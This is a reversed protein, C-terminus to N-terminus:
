CTIKYMNLFITHNVTFLHLLFIQNIQINQETDDIRFRTEQLFILEVSKRQFMQQLM